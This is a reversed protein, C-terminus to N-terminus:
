DTSHLYSEYAKEDMLGDLETPETIEVELLWGDDYPSSNVLGPFDNLKDNVAMVKGSIPMYVEAVAKVSEVSCAVDGKALAQEKAEPLDVYVVDGLEKQAHDTIGLKATKGAINLYDHNETFLVKDMLCPAVGFQRANLKAFVPKIILSRRFCSSALSKLLAM